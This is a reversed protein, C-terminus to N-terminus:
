TGAAGGRLASAGLGLGRGEGGGTGGLGATEQPCTHQMDHM